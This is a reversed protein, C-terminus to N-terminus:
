RDVVDSVEGYFHKGLAFKVSEMGADLVALASFVVLWTKKYEQGAQWHEFVFSAVVDTVEFAMAAISIGLAAGAFAKVEEKLEENEELDINELDGAVLSSAFAMALEVISFVCGFALFCMKYKYNKSM